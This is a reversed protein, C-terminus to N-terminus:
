YLLELLMRDLRLDLTHEGAAPWRTMPPIPPMPIFNEAFTPGNSNNRQLASTVRSRAESVPLSVFIPSFDIATSSKHLKVNLSSV